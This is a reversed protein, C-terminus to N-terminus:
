DHEDKSENRNARIIAHKDILFDIILFVRRFNYDDGWM